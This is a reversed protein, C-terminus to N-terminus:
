RVRHNEPGVGPVPFRRGFSRHKPSTWIRKRCTWSCASSGSAREGPSAANVLDLVTAAGGGDLIAAFPDGSATEALPGVLDVELVIRDPLDGAEEQHPVLESLSAVMVSLAVIVLVFLVGLTAFLTAILSVHRRWATSPRVIWLRWM